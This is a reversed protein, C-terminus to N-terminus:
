KSAKILVLGGIDVMKGDALLTAKHIWEDTGEDFYKKLVMSYNYNVVYDEPRFIFGIVDTNAAAAFTDLNAEVLVVPLGILKDQIKGDLGVTTRAVPQGNADVMGQIYTDWDTQTMVLVSGQRYAQPVKGVIAAWTEYKGIQAATVSAIRGAPPAETAIGKMETADVGNVMSAELGKIMARQIGNVILTEFAPLTVTDAELTLAVRCQLKHYSFTVAGTVTMKQKDSLSGETVWTAVPKLTSVPYSVGGKLNTKTVLSFLQGYSELAEIIRTTITAPIVATVDTTVATADIRKEMPTGHLVYNMFATRQELDADAAVPAAARMAAIPNFPGAPAKERAEIEVLQARCDTLEADITDIETQASRVAAIDESKLAQAKLDTRRSELKKIRDIFWQKM